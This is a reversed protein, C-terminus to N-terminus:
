ITGTYIIIAQVICAMIINIIRIIIKIITHIGPRLYLSMLSEHLDRISTQMLALYNM